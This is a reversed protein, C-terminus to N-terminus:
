VRGCPRIQQLCGEDLEEGGSKRDYAGFVILPCNRLDDM